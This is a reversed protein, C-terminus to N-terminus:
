QEPSKQISYGLETIGPLTSVGQVDGNNRMAHELSLTYTGPEFFRVGEKYWLKSEKVDGIGTGLWTGDPDAMRYELTDRITKGHPFEISAIVFLNNYPFDNTNRVHLFLDYSQLSDLKPLNFSLVQGKDWSGGVSQVDSHVIDTGCSGLLLGFLLAVFPSNQM